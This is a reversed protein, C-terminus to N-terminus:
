LYHSIRHQIQGLQHSLFTQWSAMDNLTPQTGGFFVSELICWIVGMSIALNYSMFQGLCLGLGTGFWASLIINTYWKDQTCLPM